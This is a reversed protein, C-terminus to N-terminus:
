FRLALGGGGPALYPVLTVETPGVRVRETGGSPRVVVLYWILTSVAVVGAGVVLSDTAIQYRKGRLAAARRDAIPLVLDDKRKEEVLALGGTIAAVLGAAGTIAVGTWLVPLGKTPKRVAKWIVQVVKPRPKHLTVTRTVRKGARLQLDVVATVYGEKKVVMSHAGPMLRLPRTLPSIGRPRGDISIRAGEVSVRVRLIAIKRFLERINDRALNRLVESTDTPTDRLYAEYAGIADLYRGLEKYTQGINFQIKASPYIRFAKSFLELAAVYDGERLKTVGLRVLVLAKSRAKRQARSLRARGPRSRQAVAEPVVLFTGCLVLTM